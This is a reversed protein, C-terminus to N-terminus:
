WGILMPQEIQLRMYLGSQLLDATFLYKGEKLNKEFFICYPIIADEIKENANLKSKVKKFTKNHYDVLFMINEEVIEIGKWNVKM